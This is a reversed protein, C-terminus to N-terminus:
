SANETLATGTLEEILAQSLLADRATKILEVRAALLKHRARDWDAYQYLGRAYAKGALHAAEELWPIITDRLQMVAQRGTGYRQWARYLTVRLAQRRAEAQEQQGLRAYHAAQVESQNRQGSFLPVSFGFVLAHSDSAALRRVGLEWGIDLSSRSKALQWQAKKLRGEKLLQQSLPSELVREHLSAFDPSPPLRMLSGTLTSFAPSTEGWLSALAVRAAQLENALRTRNLRARALTASAQLKDAPHAAGSEVAERVRALAQSTLKVNKQALAQREQLALLKIYRRTVRGLLDLMRARKRAQALDLRARAVDVRATQQGGLKLVSSLAVTTEGSEFGSAPGNGLVNEVEVGLRLAPDLAATDRQSELRRFQWRWRDLEPSRALTQRAAEALSLASAARAADVPPAEASAAPVVVIGVLLVLLSAGPLSRRRSGRRPVRIRSM